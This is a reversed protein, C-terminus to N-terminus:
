GLRIRAIFDDVQHRLTESQRSLEEAASLVQTAGDGAEGAAMTVSDINSSVERTGAAAQEVNRAIESTAAGQEEVASAIVSSIESIQSITANIAGIAKVAEQTAAQVSTIQGGIEETAKATQNALSKVENAVVAFGKGADGARAAEITANLALLNTQSAIDTILKVVEGIKQAANALSQMIDSTHKAQGVAQQSVKSAQSVQRGIERISGALEEAAAAVTQVNTTAQESSAAVAIAQRSVEEATASLSQSTAQMETAATSVANVVGRINGDFADALGNMAKRKDEEARRKAQDQEARLRDMEIANTKFIQVTAAMAGIEDRRGLAPVDVQKEGEALRSMCARLDALPRTISVSTAIAAVIGVVVSGILLILTLFNIRQQTEGANVMFSAAKNGAFNLVSDMQKLILEVQATGRGRVAERAEEVKGQKMLDVIDRRIPLWEAYIARLREFEAKDGLFRERGLDMREYVKRDHADIESVILDVAAGDKALTVDRVRRTIQVIEIKAELMARTVHFPHEYLNVTQKGLTAMSDISIVGLVITLLLLFAFGAALRVGIRINGFMGRGRQIGVGRM